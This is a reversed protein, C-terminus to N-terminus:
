WWDIGTSCPHKNTDNHSKPSITCSLKRAFQKISCPHKKFEVFKDTHQQSCALSTSHRNQADTTIRTWHQLSAVIASKKNSCSRPKAEIFCKWSIPLFQVNAQYSCILVMKSHQLQVIFKNLCFSKLKFSAVTFNLHQIHWARSSYGSSRGVSDM